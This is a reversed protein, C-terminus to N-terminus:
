ASAPRFQLALYVAGMAGGGFILANSLWSGFSYDPHGVFWAHLGAHIVLFACVVRRALTRTTARPSAIWAIMLAFLPVHLVVFWTRGLDDELSKLLPLLRWEHHTMADLEHTVLAGIGLYFAIEAVRRRWRTGM